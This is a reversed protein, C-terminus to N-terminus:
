TASCLQAVGNLLIIMKKRTKSAELKKAPDDFKRIYREGDTNQSLIFKWKWWLKVSRDRQAEPNISSTLSGTATATVQKPPRSDSGAEYISPLTTQHDIDPCNNNLKRATMATGHIPRKNRATPHLSLTEHVNIRPSFLFDCDCLFSVFQESGTWAWIQGIRQSQLMLMQETATTADNYDDFNNKDENFDNLKPDLPQILLELNTLCKEINGHWGIKNLASTTLRIISESTAYRGWPTTSLTHTWHTIQITARTTELRIIDTWEVFNRASKWSSSKSRSFDRHCIRRKKTFMACRSRTRSASNADARQLQTNWKMTEQWLTSLTKAETGSWTSSHCCSIRNTSPQLARRATQRWAPSRFSTTYGTSGSRSTWSSCTCMSSMYNREAIALPEIKKSKTDTSSQVNRVHGRRAPSLMVVASNNLAVSMQPFNCRLTPCTLNQTSITMHWIWWQIVHQETRIWIPTPTPINPECDLCEACTRTCHLSVWSVSLTGVIRLSTRTTTTSTTTRRTCPLCTLTQHNSPSVKENAVHFRPRTSTHPNRWMHTQICSRHFTRTLTQIQKCSDHDVLMTEQFKCKVHSKNHVDFTSWEDCSSESSLISSLCRIEWHQVLKTLDHCAQNERIHFCLYKTRRFFASVCSAKSTTLDVMACFMHKAHQQVHLPHTKCMSFNWWLTQKTNCHWFWVFLMLHIRAGFICQLFGVREIEVRALWLVGM